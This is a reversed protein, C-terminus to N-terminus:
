GAASADSGCPRWKALLPSIVGAQPTGSTREQLTGDALELAAELWRRLYLLVRCEYTHVQRVRLLLAHDISDFCGKSDLDVVWDDKWCRKAAARWPRTASKGPRYSSSDQGFIRELPHQLM